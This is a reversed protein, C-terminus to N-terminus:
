KIVLEKIEQVWAKSSLMKINNEFIIETKTNM